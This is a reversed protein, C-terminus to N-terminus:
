NPKCVVEYATLNDLQREEQQVPHRESSRKRRIVEEATGIGSEIAHDMNYYKFMGGRGAIHLNDFGALYDYIRRCNREYGVEFLPYAKPVRVVASDIVDRGSIFGLRELNRVTTEALGEDSQNWIEDGKFSFFEAVVISKGEPAM